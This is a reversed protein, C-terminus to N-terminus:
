RVVAAFNMRFLFTWRDSYDFGQEVPNSRLFSDLKGLMVIYLVFHNRAVTIVQPM